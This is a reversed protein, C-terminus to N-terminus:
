QFYAITETATPKFNSLGEGVKNAASTNKIIEDTLNKISSHLDDENKSLKVTPSEADVKLNNEISSPKSPLSSFALSDTIIDVPPYVALPTANKVMVEGDTVNITAHELNGNSALFDPVFIDKLKDTIMDGLSSLVPEFENWLEDWQKSIADAATKGDGILGTQFEATSLQHNAEGTINQLGANPVAMREIEAMSSIVEAKGAEDLIDKENPIRKQFESSLTRAQRGMEAGSGIKRIASMQRKGFIQQMQFELENEGDMGARHYRRLMQELVQWTSKNQVDDYTVGMGELLKWAKDMEQINGSTAMDLLSQLRDVIAGGNVGAVNSFARSYGFEDANTKSNHSRREDDLADLSNARQLAEPGPNGYVSLSEFFMRWKQGLKIMAGDMGKTTGSEIMQGILRTIAPGNTKIFDIMSGMARSGLNGLATGIATGKILNGLKNDGKITVKKPKKCDRDLKDVDKRLKQIKQQADRTDGTIKVKAM